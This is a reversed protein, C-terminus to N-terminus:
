KLGAQKRITEITKPHIDGKHQPITVKGPKAPHKFHRHSGKTNHYYWGDAKIEKEIEQATM